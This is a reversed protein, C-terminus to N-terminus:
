PGMTWTMSKLVEGTASERFQLQLVAGPSSIIWQRHANNPLWTGTTGSTVSGALVDIRIDLLPADSTPDVFPGIDQEGTALSLFSRDSYFHGDPDFVITIYDTWTNSFDADGFLISLRRFVVRWATGDDVLLEKLGRWASGDDVGLYKLLRFASGDDISTPM